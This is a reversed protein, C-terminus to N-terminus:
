TQDNPSTMAKTSVISPDAMCLAFQGVVWQIGQKSEWFFKIYGGMEPMM